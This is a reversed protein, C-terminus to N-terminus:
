IIRRNKEIFQQRIQDLQHKISADLLYEDIDFVFGGIISPDVEVEIIVDDGTKQKVLAKLRQLLRESPETATVLHAKRIGIGRRYITVFDRLIDEVLDMRGNKNLLTLFRSLEQSMRNGLATQLLKKKDFPSVVDDAATVMRRLEPVTHLAKELAEAESCVVEGQGTERCYKVLALAYRTIVISRNM